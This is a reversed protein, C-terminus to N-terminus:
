HLRIRHLRFNKSAQTMTPLSMNADLMHMDAITSLGDDAIQFVRIRAFGRPLGIM